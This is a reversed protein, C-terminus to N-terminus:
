TLAQTQLRRLVAKASFAGTAMCAQLLYGGTPAEWDIMEGAAYVGPMERVMLNEDLASFAIGGATSIARALGQTATATLSASKIRQALTTADGDLAAGHAERLLNIELPSLNAAKRLYNSFSQGGRPRDLRQTVQAHPMDPRLDIRVRAPGRAAIYDRLEPSLAYVAGGEIGYDTIMCDGRATREGFSVAVHKLPQGAFRTKFIDSWAIAFGCNSPALPTVAVHKRTLIKTWGGDSGLRPWSAGGLALIVADAHSSKTQGEAHFLLTGTEDWGVWDHRTHFRV